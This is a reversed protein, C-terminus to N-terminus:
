ISVNLLSDATSKASLIDVKVKEVMQLQEQLYARTEEESMDDYESKFQRMWVFMNDYASECSRAASNLEERYSTESAQNELSNAKETLKTQQSKLYGIEPMVEDHIAIVQEKLVENEDKESGCSFLLAFFLMSLVFPILKM